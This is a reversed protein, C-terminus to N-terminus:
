ASFSTGPTPPLSRSNSLAEAPPDKVKLCSMLGESVSDCANCACGAPGSVAACPVLAASAGSDTYNPLTNVVLQALEAAAGEVFGAAVLRAPMPGEPSGVPAAHCAPADCRLRQQLTPMAFPARCRRAPCCFAFAGADAATAAALEAWAAARDAAAAGAGLAQVRELAQAM